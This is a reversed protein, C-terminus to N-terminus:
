EVNVDTNSTLTPSPNTTKMNPSPSYPSPESPASPGSAM